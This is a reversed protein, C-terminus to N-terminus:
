YMNIHYKESYKKSPNEIKYKNLHMILEEFEKQYKKPVESVTKNKYEVTQRFGREDKYVYGTAHLKVDDSIQYIGSLNYTNIRINIKDSIKIDEKLKCIHQMYTLGNFAEKELQYLEEKLERSLKHAKNELEKLEELRQELKKIDVM